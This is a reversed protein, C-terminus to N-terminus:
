PSSTDQRHIVQCERKIGALQASDSFDGDICEHSTLTSLMNTMITETEDDEREQYLRYQEQDVEWYGDQQCELLSTPRSDHPDVVPLLPVSHNQGMTIITSSLRAKHQNQNSPPSKTPNSPTNQLLDPRRERGKSKHKRLKTFCLTRGTIHFEPNYFWLVYIL